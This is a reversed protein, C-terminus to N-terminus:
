HQHFNLGINKMEKAGMGGAHLWREYHHADPPAPIPKADLGAYHGRFWQKWMILDWIRDM